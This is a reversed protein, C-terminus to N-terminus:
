RPLDITHDVFSTSPRAQPDRTRRDLADHSSARPKNCTPRSYGELEMVETQEPNTICSTGVSDHLLIKVSVDRRATRRRYCLKKYVSCEAYM